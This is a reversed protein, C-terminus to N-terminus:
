EFSVQGANVHISEGTIPLSLDSALFVFTGAYESAPAMYGLALHDIVSQRVEELTAGREEARVTLVYDMRDGAIYGPNISNVRIGYQGLELALTKTMVELAAKSGSYSSYGPSLMQTAMTNVMIIRGHGQAKMYPVVAKTTQLTAFVNMEFQPRWNSLDAEAEELTTFDSPLYAINVLVDLRGFRDHAERAMRECDGVNTMDVQIPMASQGAAEVEGAVEHIVDGSRALLVLDAGQNAFALAVDRGLWRGVGAIVAVRGELLRELSPM